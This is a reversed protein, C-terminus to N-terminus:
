PISEVDIKKHASSSAGGLCRRPAFSIAMYEWRISFGAPVARSNVALPLRVESDALIHESASFLRCSERIPHIIFSRCEPLLFVSLSKIKVLPAPDSTYLVTRSLYECIHPSKLGQTGVMKAEGPIANGIEDQVPRALM